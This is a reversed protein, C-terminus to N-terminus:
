LRLYPCHLRQLFVARPTVQTDFIDRSQEHQKWVYKWPHRRITDTTTTTTTTINFRREEFLFLVYVVNKLIRVSEDANKAKSANVIMDRIDKPLHFKKSLFM